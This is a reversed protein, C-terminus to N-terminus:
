EWDRTDTLLRLAPPKPPEKPFFFITGPYLPEKPQAKSIINKIIFSINTM